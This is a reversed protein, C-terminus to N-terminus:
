KCDTMNIRRMYFGSTYTKYRVHYISIYNSIHMFSHIFTRPVWKDSPFSYDVHEIFENNTSVVRQKRIAEAMEKIITYSPPLGNKTLTTFWKVLTNEESDSLNQQSVHAMCRPPRGQLRNHFTAESIKITKAVSYVSSYEGSKLGTLAYQYLLEKNSEETSHRYLM